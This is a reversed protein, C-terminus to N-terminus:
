ADGAVIDYVGSPIAVAVVDDVPGNDVVAEICSCQVLTDVVVVDGIDVGNDAEALAAASVTILIIAFASIKRTVFTPVEVVNIDDTNEPPSHLGLLEGSFFFAVVGGLLLLESPIGNLLPVITISPIGSSSCLIVISLVWCCPSSM